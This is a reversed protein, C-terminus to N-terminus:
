FNVLKKNNVDEYIYSIKGLFKPSFESMFFEDLLSVSYCQFHDDFGLNDIAQCCFYITKDDICIIHNVLGFIPMEDAEVGIQIVCNTKIHIGATDVWSAGFMKNYKTFFNYKQFIFSSDVSETKGFKPKLFSNEFNLLLNAFQYEYKTAFTTLLNIRCNVANAVNKFKKHFSEFRLNCNAFLPGILKMIRPYHVLFHHKPKLDGFCETYLEHHEHVLTQLLEYTRTDIIKSCVLDNIQKMIIYIRWEKLERPIKHGIIKSFNIFLTQMESASARITKKDLMEKTIDEIIKNKNLPGYNFTKICENLYALTFLKYKDILSIIINTLDYHFVGEFLDHMVDVCLNITVHFTDFENFICNKKVGTDTGCNILVDRTYNILDRIASEDEALLKSCTKRHVNCFRCFYNSFSFSEMFGLISNLGLNDGTINTLIFKVTKNNVKIGNTHLDNIMKIIPRFIRDTGFFTRDGSFFLSVPFIYALLSAMYPPLCQLICYVAGVKYAGSHSGLSNLPEFDDFYLLLPLYITSDDKNEKSILHEWLPTQVVNSISDKCKQKESIFTEITALIGPLNLFKTLMAKLNFLKIIRKELKVKQVSNVFKIKKGSAIIYNRSEIYIGATKLVEKLRYESRIDSPNKFFEYLDKLNQDEQFQNEFTEIKLITKSYIDYSEKFIELAKNRPIKEESMLKVAHKILDKKLNSIIQQGSIENTEKNAKHNSSPSSTNYRSDTSLTTQSIPNPDTKLCCSRMHNRLTNKACYVRDCNYNPCPFQTIFRHYANLHEFFQGASLCTVKCLKCALM